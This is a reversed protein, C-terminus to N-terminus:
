QEKLENIKAKLDDSNLQVPNGELSTMPAIIGMKVQMPMYSSEYCVGVCDAAKRSVEIAVDAVKIIDDQLDANATFETTGVAEKYKSYASHITSLYDKVNDGTIEEPLNALDTQLQRYASQMIIAESISEKQKDLSKSYDKALKTLEQEPQLRAIEEVSATFKQLNEDYLKQDGLNIASELAILEDGLRSSVELFASYQKQQWLSTCMFTELAVFAAIALLLLIIRLAKM